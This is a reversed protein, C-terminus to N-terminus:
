QRRMRQFDSPTLNGDSETKEVRNRGKRKAEYLAHDAAAYLAAVTSNHGAPLSGVGLSATFEISLGSTIKAPSQQLTRLLKDALQVAADLRTQPLLVVFEEGGIRAVVDTVRVAGLLCAATHRLVADGAPHGYRDNIKKFFDLDVMIASMDTGHRLSRLLEAEALRLFEGRNFLGTLADRKALWVLEEQQRTLEENRRSLERQLLIYRINKHWLGIALVAGLLAAALGNLRNSLLQVAETQTSGIAVFFFAYGAAFLPLAESPRLQFLLSAFVCGLLFPSINTTVLQDVATLAATFLLATMPALLHLVRAMLGPPAQRSLVFALLGLLSLWGSMILHSWGNAEKWLNHAPTGPSVLWWFVVVHVLNLPIVVLVLWRLRRLNGLIAEDLISRGNESATALWAQLRHFWITM